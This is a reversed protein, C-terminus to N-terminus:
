KERFRELRKYKTKEFSKSIKGLWIKNTFIFILGIVSMSILTMTENFFLYFLAIFGWGAMLILIPFLSNGADVGQFNYFYFAKINFPKYSLLSSYFLGFFGFGAAFLFAAVLEQLKVGFLMSPLFEIFLVFSVICFLRYKAQLIKDFPLPAIAQIEIFSSLIGFTAPAFNAGVCFIAWLWVEKLLFSDQLFRSAPFQMFFLTPLLIFTVIFMQKLRKNRVILKWEFRILNM